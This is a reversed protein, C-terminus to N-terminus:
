SKDNTENRCIDELRIIYMFSMATYTFISIGVFKLKKLNIYQLHIVDNRRYTGYRAYTRLPIKPSNTNCKM